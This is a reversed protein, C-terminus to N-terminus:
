PALVVTTGRGTSPQVAHAAIAGGANIGGLADFRWGDTTRVVTPGRDGPRWTMLTGASDLAAVWGGSRAMRIATTAGFVRDLWVSAGTPPLLAPNGCWRVLLTGDTAVDIPDTQSFRGPLDCVTRPLGSITPATFGVTTLYRGLNSYGGISQGVLRGPGGDLVLNSTSSDIAAGAAVDFVLSQYVGATTPSIFNAGSAIARRDEGLDAAVSCCLYRRYGGQEDRYLPGLRFTAGDARRVMPTHPANPSLGGLTLLVDGAANSRNAVADVTDPTDIVSLAGGHWRVARVHGVPQAAWGVVEGGDNIGLPQSGAGLDPLVAAGYTREAFAFTREVTAAASDGAVAYATATFTHRGASPFLAVLRLTDVGSPIWKDYPWRVPQQTPTGSDVWARVSTIRAGDRFRLTLEVGRQVITDGTPTAVALELRSPPTPPPEVATADSRGCAVTFATLPALALALTHRAVRHSM